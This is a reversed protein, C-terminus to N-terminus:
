LREMVIGYSGNGAPLAILVSDGAVVYKLKTRCKIGRNAVLVNITDDDDINVVKGIYGRQQKRWERAAVIAAAGSVTNPLLIAPIEMSQRIDLVTHMARWDHQVSLIAGTPVLTANLPVTITRIAGRLGAKAALINAAIKNGIATTQEETLDDTDLYIERSTWLDGSGAACIVPAELLRNDSEDSRMKELAAVARECSRWGLGHFPCKNGSFSPNIIELSAMRCNGSSYHPCIRAPVYDGEFYWEDGNVNIDGDVTIYVKQRGEQELTQRDGSLSTSGPLFEINTRDSLTDLATYAKESEGISIDELDAPVVYGHSLLFAGGKDSHSATMRAVCLNEEFIEHVTKTTTVLVWEDTYSQPVLVFRTGGPLVQSIREDTNGDIVPVLRTIAQKEYREEIETMLKSAGLGLTEYKRETRYDFPPAPPVFGETDADSSKETISEIAESTLNGDFDYSRTTTKVTHETTAITSGDAASLVGTIDTTVTETLMAWHWVRYERDGRTEIDSDVDYTYESVYTKSVSGDVITYATRKPANIPMYIEVEYSVHGNEFTDTGNYSVVDLVGSPTSGFWAIKVGGAKEAKSKKRRQVIVTCGTAYSDTDIKYSEESLIIPLSPAALAPSTVVLRGQNDIYTIKGSLMALEQVAEICTSGTILGSAPVNLDCTGVITIGCYECIHQMATDVNGERLYSEEPLTKSLKLGNDYGSLLFQGYEGRQISTIIGQGTLGPLTIEGGLTFPFPEARSGELVMRWAGLLDKVGHTYNYDLIERSHYDTPENIHLLQM